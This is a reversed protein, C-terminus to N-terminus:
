SGVLLNLHMPAYQSYEFTEFGDLVLPETPVGKHRLMENLLLCHRGLREIRCAVSVRTLSLQRCIQRIGACAMLASFIPEFLDQRRCWYGLRFTQMSFNRRCDLCQFRQVLLPPHKRSHTGNRIYRWGSPARHFRCAANPCFPPETVPTFIDM